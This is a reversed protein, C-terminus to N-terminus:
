KEERYHTLGVRGRYPAAPWGGSRSAVAPTPRDSRAPRRPAPALGLARRISAAALKAAIRLFFRANVRGVMSLEDGSAYGPNRELFFRVAPIARVESTFPAVHSKLRVHDRVVGEQPRWAVGFRERTISDILGGQWEPLGREPHPWYEAFNNAMKLFTRYGNCTLHWYLRRFPHRLRWRLLAAVVSRNLAQQGWYRPDVMTDGSFYVEIRRNRYAHSHISATSFARVEDTGDEFGLFVYQKDSLDREFIAREANDYHNSYLEWMSEIWRAQLRQVRVRRVKLTRGNRM